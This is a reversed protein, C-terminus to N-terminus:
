PLNDLEEMFNVIIADGAAMPKLNGKTRVKM